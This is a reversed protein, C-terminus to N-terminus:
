RALAVFVRLEEGLVQHRLGADEAAYEEPQGSEVSCVDGATDHEEGHDQPAREGAVERRATKQRHLRRRDVPVEDVDDPDTEVGRDVDESRRRRRVSAARILKAAGIRASTRAYPTTAGARCYSMTHQRAGAAV